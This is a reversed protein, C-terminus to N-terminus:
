KWSVKKRFGASVAADPSPTGDRPLARELLVRIGLTASEPWRQLEGSQYLRQLAIRRFRRESGRAISELERSDFNLLPLSKNMDVAFYHKNNM